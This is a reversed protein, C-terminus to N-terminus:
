SFLLLNERSGNNQDGLGRASGRGDLPWLQWAFEEATRKQENVTDLVPFRQQIENKELV